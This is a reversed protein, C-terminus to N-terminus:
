AMPRRPPSSHWICHRRWVRQCGRRLHFGCPVAAATATTRCRLMQTCGITLVRVAAGTLIPVARGSCRGYWHQKIATNDLGRTDLLAKAAALTMVTDDTFDSRQSFLPFDRAKYNSCDFEYPSGVIDGLIAGYM